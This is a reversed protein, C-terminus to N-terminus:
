DTLLDLAKENVVVIKRGKVKIINESKLRSLMRALTEITTGVFAALDSRSLTIEGAGTDDGRKYKESLILLSLALREKVSKQGFAAIRNVLVTFEHSLNQLLINSLSASQKLAHLFTRANMFYISCDEIAQASAPHREACLLPRYGLMEGATYIYVIQVSGSPSQHYIKVKGKKVLYIHRPYQGEHYLHQGKPIRKLKLLKEFSALEDAPLLELLSNTRFSYKLLTARVNRHEM